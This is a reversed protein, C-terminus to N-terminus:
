DGPCSQRRSASEPPSQRITILSVLYLQIIPAGTISFPISPPHEGPTRANKDVTVLQEAQIQDGNELILGAGTWTREELGEVVIPQVECLLCGKQRTAVEDPSDILSLAQGRLIGDELSGIEFLSEWEISKPFVVRQGASDELFAGRVSYGTEFWFFGLLREGSNRTSVVGVVGRPRDISNETLKSATAQLVEAVRRATDRDGAMLAEGLKALAAADVAGYPVPDGAILPQFTSRIDDQARKALTPWVIFLPEEAVAQGKHEIIVRASELTERNPVRISPMTRDFCYNGESVAHVVDMTSMAPAVCIYALLSRVEIAPLTQLVTVEGNEAVFSVNLIENPLGPALLLVQLLGVDARSFPATADAYVIEPQDLIAGKELRNM